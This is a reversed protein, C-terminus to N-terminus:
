IAKQLKHMVSNIDRKSDLSSVVDRIPGFVTKVLSPAKIVAKKGQKKGKVLANQKKPKATHLRGILIVAPTQPAGPKRSMPATLNKGNLRGNIILNAKSKVFQDKPHCAAVTAFIQKKDDVEVGVSLRADPCHFIMRTM